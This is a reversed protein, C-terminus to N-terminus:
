DHFWNHRHTKGPLDFFAVLASGEYDQLVKHMMNSFGAIAGTPEGHANTLPPMAYFARFIFSTADILVLPKTM